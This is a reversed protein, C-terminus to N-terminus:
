RREYEAAEALGVQELLDARARRAAPDARADLDRGLAGLADYWIGAEALARVREMGTLGGLRTSLPADPAVRRIAGSSFVDASRAEDDPVIAVSWEYDTDEALKVGHERLSFRQIGASQVGALEVETVPAPSTDQILVLEIRVMSPQSIFWYLDPQEELTLGLGEPALVAVRPVGGGAGRTAGGVRRAPAGRSPPKYVVVPEARPPAAPKQATSAAGERPPTPADKRTDKPADAFAVAGSALLMALAWRAKM